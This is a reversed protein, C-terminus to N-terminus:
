ESEVVPMVAAIIKAALMKADDDEVYLDIIEGLGDYWAALEERTIVSIAGSDYEFGEPFEGAGVAGMADDGLAMAAPHVFFVLQRVKADNERKQINPIDTPDGEYFDEKLSPHQFKHALFGDNRLDNIAAAVEAFGEDGQNLGMIKRAESFTLGELGKGEGVQDLFATMAKKHWARPDETEDTKTKKKAMGIEKMIEPKLAWIARKAPHHNREKNGTSIFKGTNYFYDRDFFSAAITRNIEVPLRGQAELEDLVM